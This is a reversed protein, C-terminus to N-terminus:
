TDPNVSKNHLYDKTFIKLYIEPGNHSKMEEEAYELPMIDFSSGLQLNQIKVVVAECDYKSEYCRLQNLAEGAEKYDMKTPDKMIIIHINCYKFNDNKTLM